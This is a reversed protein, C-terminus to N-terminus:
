KLNSANLKNNIIPIIKKALFSVAKKPKRQSGYLLSPIKKKISEKM